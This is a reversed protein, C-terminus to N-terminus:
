YIILILFLYGQLAVLLRSLNSKPYFDGFGLTLITTTSFYISDSVTLKENFSNEDYISILYYFIGFLITFITIFFLKEFPEDIRKRISNLFLKVIQIM